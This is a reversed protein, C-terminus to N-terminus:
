FFIFRLTKKRTYEKMNVPWDPVFSLEGKLLEGFRLRLLYVPTDLV